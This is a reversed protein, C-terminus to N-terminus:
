DFYNKFPFIVHPLRMNLNQNIGFLLYYICNIKKYEYYCIMINFKIIYYILYLLSLFIIRYNM